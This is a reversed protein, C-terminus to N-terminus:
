KKSSNLRFVSFLKKLSRKRRTEAKRQAEDGDDDPLLLLVIDDRPSSTCSQTGRDSDVEAALAAEGTCDSFSRMRTLRRGGGVLVDRTQEPSAPSRSRQDINGIRRDDGDHMELLQLFRRAAADRAETTNACQEGVSDAYAHESAIFCMPQPTETCHVQKIAVNDSSLLRVFENPM